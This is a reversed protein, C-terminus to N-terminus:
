HCAWVPRERGPLLCRVEYGRKGPCEALSGAPLRGGGRWRPPMGHVRAARACARHLKVLSCGRFVEEQGWLIKLAVLRVATPASLLHELGGPTGPDARRVLTIKLHGESDGATALHWAAQDERSLLYLDKVIWGSRQWERGVALGASGSLHTGERVGRLLGECRSPSRLYTELSRWVRALRSADEVHFSDRLQRTVSYVASATFAALVMLALVPGKHHRFIKRVM